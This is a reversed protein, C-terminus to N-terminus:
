ELPQVSEVLKVVEGDLVFKALTKLETAMYRDRTVVPFFKRVHKLLIESVKNLRRQPEKWHYKLKLQLDVKFDGGGLAKRISEEYADRAKRTQERQERSLSIKSPVYDMEMRIAAAQSAFALEIALVEALRPITEYARVAVGASMSVHDEQGADTSLSFLHSPMCAGWIVNTLSASTYEPIMMGSFISDDEESQLPWKLDANFGKNRKEDVYRVCRMNSLRSMIGMAQLLNYIKVAVPMGHFHGGSIIETYSQPDEKLPLLLPNDTVSNVEIEFTQRAEEILDYCTGLIQAACRLNYPDQVEGDIDFNRHMNRIPSDKMLAFIWKAIKISGPHPRLLNLDERFPTDFGLMVQTGIATIVAATKLLDKMQFYSIIGFATSFQLGNNLALGEKMELKVPTLGAAALAVAADMKQQDPGVGVFVEGQGILALAIHSLPALDGSAGVSGYKPVLPIIDHNLLNLLAKVVCSRIGSHGRCLSIMRLFITARVVEYPAPDGVGCSHSIILNNQLESLKDDPVRLDVNHGFGRNFGYAPIKRGRVKAVIQERRQDLMEFVAADVEVREGRAVQLVEELSVHHELTFVISKITM